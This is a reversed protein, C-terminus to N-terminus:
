MIVSFANIEADGPEVVIFSGAVVHFCKSQVKDLVMQLSESAFSASFFINEPDHWGREPLSTWSPVFM